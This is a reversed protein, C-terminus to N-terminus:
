PVPSSEVIARMVEVPAARSTWLEFQAAAQRVFMESGLILRAGARMARQGLETVRPTYVIDLVSHDRRILHEQILCGDSDPIMGVSTTHIVITARDLAPALEDDGLSIAVVGVEPAALRVDESLAAAKRADRAAITLEHPPAEIAITMAIARASGGAGLVLVRRGLPDASAERLAALAGLGDTTYGVLIGNRNVVTNVSGVRRAVPDLADLHEIIALKHPITVSLGSLGLARMGTVAGRVDEVRFAVYAFNLGEAEFAANHIAPSLSHHVPNGILGCLQTHADIKVAHPRECPVPPITGERGVTPTRRRRDLM